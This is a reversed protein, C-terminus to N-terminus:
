RAESALTATSFTVLSVPFTVVSSPSLFSARSSADKVGELVVVSSLPSFIFPYRVKVSAYQSQVPFFGKCIPRSSTQSAHIFPDFPYADQLSSDTSLNYESANVVDLQPSTEASLICM